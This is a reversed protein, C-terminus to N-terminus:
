LIINKNKYKEEKTFDMMLYRRTLEKLRIKKDESLLDHPEEQDNSLPPIIPKEIKDDFIESLTFRNLEFPRLIWVKADKDKEKETDNKVAFFLAKIADETWDLLRTNVNYHQMLFYRNWATNPINKSLIFPLAKRDFSVKINQEVYPYDHENGKILYERNQLSDQLEKVFGRYANPTLYTEPYDVEGRFWFINFPDDSDENTKEFIMKLFEDVTTAKQM